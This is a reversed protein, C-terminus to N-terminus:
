TKRDFNQMKNFPLEYYSHLENERDHYFGVIKKWKIVALAANLANLEAIQPIKSYDNNENKSFKIRNNNYIHELNGDISTTTRLKALISGNVINVGMGVDIFSISLKKLHKIISEKAESNDISLFVFSFLNLKELNELGINEPHSIIGKHIKSYEKKFYETKRQVDKLSNISTGGPAKFANKNYYYDKDFLHIEKVPTKSIYDLIYAGTGGLGIIGIKMNSFKTLLANIEPSGSNCDSYHFPSDSELKVLEGINFTISPDVRIAHKSFIHVYHSMKEYYNKYAVGNKKYSFYFNATLGPLLEITKCNNYNIKEGNVKYPQEGIFYVPHSPNEKINLGSMELTSVITGYQISLNECLYPVRRIAIFKKEIIEVYYGDEVLKNIYPNPNM